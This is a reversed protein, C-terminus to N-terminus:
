KDALDLYSELEDEPCSYDDKNIVMDWLGAAKLENRTAPRMNIECSFLEEEKIFKGEKYKYVDGLEDHEVLYIDNNQNIFIEFYSFSNNYRGINYPFNM